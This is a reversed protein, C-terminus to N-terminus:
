QGPARTVEPAPRGSGSPLATGDSPFELYPLSVTMMASAQHSAALTVFLLISAFVRM